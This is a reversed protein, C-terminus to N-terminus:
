EHFMETLCHLLKNSIINLDSDQLLPHIPLCFFHNLLYESDVLNDKQTNFLKRFLPQLHLPPSYAWDIPIKKAHLKEQLIKRNFQTHLKIIFRWYAHRINNPKPLIKIWGELEAKSLSEQYIKAIHNRKEIFKDIHRLQSLGLIAAIETMRNNTGVASYCEIPNKLDRGRYRLSDFQEYLKINNTTIMGGEGTTIIKTPYFSFCACDGFSGARQGDLEAGAAHAADEILFLNNQKCYSQIAKMEPTILGAMHVIIVARTKKTQLRKIEKLSLCFTDSNIGAFIPKGGERVVAAGTAIFTEIPVIVENEKTLNLIRLAIELAASCSNTAVAYKCHSYKAFTQEFSRVYEGQSLIKAGQLITKFANLIIPIEEDPFYPRSMNYQM